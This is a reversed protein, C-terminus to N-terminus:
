AVKGFPEHATQAQLVPTVLFLLHNTEGRSPHMQFELFLSKQVRSVATCRSLWCRRKQCRRWEAWEVSKLNTVAENRRVFV